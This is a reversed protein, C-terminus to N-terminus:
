QVRKFMGAGDRTCQGLSEWSGINPVHGTNFIGSTSSRLNAISIQSGGVWAGPGVSTHSITALVCCGIPYREATMFAGTQWKGEQVAWDRARQEIRNNIANYASTDGWAQWISGVLNGNSQFQANGAKLSSTAVVDGSPFVQLLDREWAGTAPNMKCLVLVGDSRLIWKQTDDADGTFGFGLLNRNAGSDGNRLSLQTGIGRGTFNPNNRDLKAAVQAPTAAGVDDASLSIVGTQGNVSLVQDTPTLMEQWNALVTAPELRLIFTKKLDTRVAVDGREAVLALMSAQSNVVFTDAIAVPPLQSSPIKGAADLTAVGNPVGRDVTGLADINQRARSKQALTFAQVSDVRVRLALADATSNTLSQISQDIVSQQAAQSTEIESRVQDTTIADTIGYGNLTTPRDTIDAFSHKHSIYVDEFAKFRSDIAGFTSAVKIMEVIQLGYPNPIDWHYNPTKENAM